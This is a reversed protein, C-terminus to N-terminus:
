IIEDVYLKLCELINKSNLKLENDLLYANLSLRFKKNGNWCRTMLRFIDREMSRCMIESNTPLEVPIDLANLLYPFGTYSSPVGIDLLERKVLKELLFSNEGRRVRKALWGINDLFGGMDLLKEDCPFEERGGNVCVMCDVAGAYKAYEEVSSVAVINYNTNDVESSYAFSIKNGILVEVACELDDGILCIKDFSKM